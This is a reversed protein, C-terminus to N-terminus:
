ESIYAVAEIEVKFDAALDVILTSRAPAKTEFYKRYVANMSDFYTRNTLFVTTKLVCELDSGAAQLVRQINKIVQETEQEVTGFLPEGTDMDYSVTGSVFVLSGFTIGESLPLNRSATQEVQIVRKQLM